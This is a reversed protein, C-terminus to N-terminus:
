WEEPCTVAASKHFRHIQKKGPGRKESAKWGIACKKEALQIRLSNKEYFPGGMAPANGLFPSAWPNGM